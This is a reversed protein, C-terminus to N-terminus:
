GSLCGWVWAPNEDRCAACANCLAACGDLLRLLATIFFHVSATNEDVLFSIRGFVSMVGHLGRM